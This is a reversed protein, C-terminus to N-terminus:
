DRKVIKLAIWTYLYGILLVIISFLPIISLLIVNDQHPIRQQLASEDLATSVAPDIPEDLGFQRSAAEVRLAAIESQCNILTAQLMTNEEKLRALEEVMEKSALLEEKGDFDLELFVDGCLGVFTESPVEEDGEKITVRIGSTSLHSSEEPDDEAKIQPLIIDDLQLQNESESKLLEAKALEYVLKTNECRVEELASVVTANNNILTKQKIIQFEEEVTLLSRKTDSLRLEAEVRQERAKNIENHTNKWTNRRTQLCRKEICRKEFLTTTRAKLIWSGRWFPLEQSCRDESLFSKWARDTSLEASELQSDGFHMWTPDQEHEGCNGRWVEASGARKRGPMAARRISAILRVLQSRDDSGENEEFDIEHNSEHVANSEYIANSEYATRWGYREEKSIPWVNAEVQAQNCRTYVHSTVEDLLQGRPINLLMGAFRKSKLLNEFFDKPRTGSNERQNGFFDKPRMGFCKTSYM